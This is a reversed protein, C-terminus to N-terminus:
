RTRQGSCYAKGHMYIVVRAQPNQLLVRFNLTQTVDEVPGTLDQKLLEKQNKQYLGIPLVHWGHLKVGDAANINFPTVQNHAFGFQEPVNLDRSGTLTVKHLYIAYPQLAPFTVLLTLATLYCAAPVGISLLVVNVTTRLAGNM